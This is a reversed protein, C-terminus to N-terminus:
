SLQKLFSRLKAFSRARHSIANKEESNMEAYTMGNGEEPEFIPDWGFDLKGRPAVIKGKTRGDFVRPEEDQGGNSFAVITQAYATRDDFGDLMKNLGDHGCKELFWKIYPGPLGNLANFCLSTDETMCPGKVKAVAIRCKEKAIDEPDGQLEPLDIKQNVIEVFPMDDQELIQQVEELKKQNGTVFTLKPKNTTPKSETTSASVRLCDPLEKGSPYSAGRRRVSLGAFGCAMTAAKQLSVDAALYSALSGCFGDGAGVTDLVPDDQGPMDSPASVLVTPANKQVIMAGRAGLTVIVATQIGRELLSKALTEEEDANDTESNVGCLTRLETENPILIDTYPLFQQLFSETEDEPAPAPNLITLAGVSKATQLAQLATDYLIELQLLVVKPNCEKIQAVVDDKSLAHNAGPSVIVARALTSPFSVPSISSALVPCLSVSVSIPTSMNDGSPNDVVITAVGTADNTSYVRDSDYEVRNSDFNDLLTQAFVDRGVKCIMSVPVCNVSAAANAQNAGKGGCSTAFTQGMVTQGLTPLTNTYSTLDQNASGVVVVRGSSASPMALSSVRKLFLLSSTTVLLRMCVSHM